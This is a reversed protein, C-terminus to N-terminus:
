TAKADIKKVRKKPEKPAVVTEISSTEEVHAVKGVLADVMAKLSEKTSKMELDMTLYQKTLLDVVATNNQKM